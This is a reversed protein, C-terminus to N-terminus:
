RPRALGVSATRAETLAACMMDAAQSAAALAEVVDSVAVEADRGDLETVQGDEHQTVLFRALQECVQPLRHGILELSAVIQRVDAANTLEGGGHTVENLARIADAAQDAIECATYVSTLEPIVLQGQQRTPVHRM